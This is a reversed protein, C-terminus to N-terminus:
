RYYALNYKMNFGGSFHADASAKPACKTSIMLLSVVNEALYYFVLIIIICNKEDLIFRVDINKKQVSCLNKWSESKSLTM